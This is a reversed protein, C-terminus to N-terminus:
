GARARVEDSQGSVLLSPVLGAPHVIAPLLAEAAHPAPAPRQLTLSTGTAAAATHLVLTADARKCPTREYRRFAAASFVPGSYTNRQLLAPHGANEQSQTEGQVWNGSHRALAYSFPIQLPFRHAARLM